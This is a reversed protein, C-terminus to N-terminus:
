HTGSMTSPELRCTEPSQGRLTTMDPKTHACVRIRFQPVADEQRFECSSLLDVQAADRGLHTMGEGDTLEVVFRKYQHVIEATADCPRASSCAFHDGTEATPKSYSGYLLSFCVSRHYSTPVSGFSSHGTDSFPRTLRRCVARPKCLRPHRASM